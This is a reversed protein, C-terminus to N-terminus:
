PTRASTGLPRQAEASGSDSGPFPPPQFKEHSSDASLGKWGSGRRSFADADGFSNLGELVKAARERAEASRGGLLGPPEERGALDTSNAGAGPPVQDESKSGVILLEVLKGHVDESRIYSYPTLVQEIALDLPTAQFEASVETALLDTPCQYKWGQIRSFLRLVNQLPAALRGTLHDGGPAITPMTVTAPNPVLDRGWAPWGTAVCSLWIIALSRACRGLGAKNTLM